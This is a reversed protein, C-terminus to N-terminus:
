QNEIDIGNNKLAKKVVAMSQEPLELYKCADTNLSFLCIYNSGDTAPYTKVTEDYKTTYTIVALGFDHRKPLSDLKKGTVLTILDVFDQGSSATLSVSINDELATGPASLEIAVVNKLKFKKSTSNQTYTDKSCGTFVFTMCLALVAALIRKMKKM